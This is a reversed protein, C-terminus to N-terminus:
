DPLGRNRVFMTTGGIALVAAALVFAVVQVHRFLMVVLWVAVIIALAGALQRGVYVATNLLSRGIGRQPEAPKALELGVEGTSVMTQTATM